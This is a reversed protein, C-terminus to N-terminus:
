DGLIQIELELNIGLEDLVRSRIYDILGIVQAATAGGQNIIFNAHILSIQARGITFGKLGLSDIIRGASDGPPNKFICGANLTRLPQTTKRRQYYRYVENKIEQRDGKRLSIEAALVIDGPPINTSRYNFVLEDRTLQYVNGERNMLTVENILHGITKDTLGANMMVGGGLSGPLGAAFELGSLGERISLGLLSSIGLGAEVQLRVERRSEGLFKLQNFHERLSVVVGSIGRDKVLVNTGNGLIYIPLGERSCLISIAKLDETTRPVIFVEAPGGLGFYTKDQLPKRFKVPCKIEGWLSSTLSTTAM